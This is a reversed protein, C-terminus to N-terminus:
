HEGLSDIGLRRLKKWLTKRSIGLMEAARTRNWSAARLTRLLYDREFGRQAESFRQIREDAGPVPAGTGRIEEPLHHLDAVEGRALAAAHVIAHRLERVNGPYEYHSLASWARPTFRLPQGCTRRSIHDVLLPLDARRERLPPVHLHFLKLRYFLDERFEGGAIRSRLDVNTASVARVDARLSTNTGLPQYSGDELVRLLKAQAGPSMEGVEDLFLTGGEAAGFRGERKRVAGTFAGREYGFLEAELLTEPFAACNVAVFPRASRKSLAHITRAVLEKGTGTEGTILVPADTAAVAQIRRRLERIVPTEGIILNERDGDPQNGLDVLRLREAIEAVTGLLTDLSFPKSLYDAADNKLAVVAEPISGYASMLVVETQPHQGKVQRFITLGDAGPLRIDCILLDYGHSELDRLAADGDDIVRVKHGIRQLAEALTEAIDVEDEVLLIDLPRAASGNAASQDRDHM